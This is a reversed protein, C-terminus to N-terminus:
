CDRTQDERSNSNHLNSPQVELVWTQKVLLQYPHRMTSMPNWTMVFFLLVILSNPFYRAANLISDDFGWAHSCQLLPARLSPKCSSSTTAPIGDVWAQYWGCRNESTMLFIFKAYDLMDFNCSFIILILLNVQLRWMM